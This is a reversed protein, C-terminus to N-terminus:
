SARLREAYWARRRIVKGVTTHHWRGGHKSPVGDQNLKAAIAHSSKGARSLDLIRRVIALEAPVPIMHHRKGNPRFGLPPHSTPLGNERKWALAGRTREAILEREMQALGGFLTLVFRGHPTSTDLSESVSHLEIKRALFLDEVLSLLHRTRRTLRDLKWVIVHGVEGRRCRELLCELAPRKLDKGSLGEDVLVETLNLAKATAYATIRARQADLSVGERVQEERSM